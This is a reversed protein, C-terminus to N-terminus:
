GRSFDSPWTIAAGMSNVITTYIEAFTTTGDPSPTSRIFDGTSHQFQRAHWRRAPTTVPHATTAPYGPARDRRVGISQAGADDYVWALSIRRSGSKFGVDKKVIGITEEVTVKGSPKATAPPRIEYRVAKVRGASYGNPWVEATIINPPLKNRRKLYQRSNVVVAKATYDVSRHYIRSKEPGVDRSKDHTQCIQNQSVCTKSILFWIASHQNKSKARRRCLGGYCSGISM